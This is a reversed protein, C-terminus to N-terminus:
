LLLNKGYEVIRESVKKYIGKELIWSHWYLTQKLHNKPALDILKGSNLYANAQTNPLLCYALGEVAMSVFAESSRITHCPYSGPEVGYNKALYEIDM